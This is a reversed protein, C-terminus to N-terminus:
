PSLHGKESGEKVYRKVRLAETWWERGCGDTPWVLAQVDTPAKPCSKYFAISRKWLWQNILENM